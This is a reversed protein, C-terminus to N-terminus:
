GIVPPGTHTSRSARFKPWQLLLLAIGAGLAGGIAWGGLVDTVYHGGVYVRSFGILAVLPWSVWGTAPYLMQLFAAAAATNLAHNSPF